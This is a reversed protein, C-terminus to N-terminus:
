FKITKIKINKVFNYLFFHLFFYSLYYYSLYYFFSVISLFYNVTGEQVKAPWRSFRKNKRQKGALRQLQYIEIQLQLGFASKAQAHV